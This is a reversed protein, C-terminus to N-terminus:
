LLASQTAQALVAVVTSLQIKSTWETTPLQNFKRLLILTGTIALAGILWALLEWLWERVEYHSPRLWNENSTVTSAQSEETDREHFVSRDKPDKPAYSPASSMDPANLLSYSTMIMWNLSRFLIRCCVM